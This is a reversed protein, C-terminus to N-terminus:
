EYRLATTPDISAAQYAPGLGAAVGVLMSVGLALAVATSSVVAAVGLLSEAVVTSLIVGLVAGILGGVISLVVAEVLFQTTIDGRTAGVARRIGIERTRERVAVLMMNAIGIAGVVLSIAGISTILTTLLATTEDAIDTISGADTVTFDADTAPEIERAQRLAADIDDLVEDSTEILGVRIQTLEPDTDIIGGEATDLPVLVADDPSVFSVGGIPELVGIVTFSQGDVVVEADIAAAPDLGLDEVLTAGLVAVPLGAEDTFASFWGGAAFEYSELDALGSTTAIVTTGETAGLRAEGAQQVVPVVSEVGAVQGVADADESTLPDGASTSGAPALRRGSGPQEDAVDSGGPTISLTDAGLGSLNADISQQVASGLSVLAVVSAIGIVIGLVTLGSRLANVRLQRLALAVSTGIM